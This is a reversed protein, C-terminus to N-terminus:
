CYVVLLPTGENVDLDIFTDVIEDAFSSDDSLLLDDCNMLDIELRDIKAISVPLDLYDEPLEGLAELLKRYTIKM